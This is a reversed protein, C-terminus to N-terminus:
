GTFTPAWPPPSRSTSSSVRWRTTPFTCSATSRPRRTSRRGGPADVLVQGSGSWRRPAGGHDRRAARRVGAVEGSSTRGAGPRASGRRAHGSRPLLPLVRGLRTPGRGLVGPAPRPGAGDGRTGLIFSSRFTAHGDARPHRRDPASLTGTAGVACAPWCRDPCTSSRCTSTPCAPAVVAEIIRRHVGVPLSVAPPHPRGTGLDGTDVRRHAVTGSQGTGRDPPDRGYSALDQAVLVIERLPPATAEPRRGEPWSCTSKACSRTAHRSRQKGRFSPIACFGCIRDCGEAVKIYAWPVESAPRALELLDFGETPRPGTPAALRCPCRRAPRDLGPEPRLGHRVRGGPRDGSPCRHARRRIARGYLRDRGPARGPAATRSNWCRM